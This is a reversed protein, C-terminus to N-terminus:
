GDYPDIGLMDALKLAADKQSLRFLYAALSIFDGGKDGTAFDSWFGTQLNVKFSGPKHDTRTPNRAAWEGGERRGDALWRRALIDAHDLARASIRRFAIRRFTTDRRATM